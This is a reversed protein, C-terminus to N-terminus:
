DVLYHDLIMLIELNIYSSSKFLKITANKLNKIRCVFVNAAFVMILKFGFNPDYIIVEAACICM